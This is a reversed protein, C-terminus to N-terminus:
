QSIWLINGKGITILDEVTKTDKGGDNSVTLTVDYLGPENFTIVPNKDASTAIVKGERVFEWYWSSIKGTSLDTFTVTAPYFSSEMPEATFDAVPKDNVVTVSKSVPAGVGFANSVSLTVTYTGPQAYAHTPSQLSSTANDGFEWMWSTPNGTSQDTFQINEGAGAAQPAFSFDAVPSSLVNIYSEKVAKNSVGNADTV